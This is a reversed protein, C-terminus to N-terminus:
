RLKWQICMCVCEHEDEEMLMEYVCICEHSTRKWSHKMILSMMIVVAVTSQGEKNTIAPLPTSIDNRHTPCAGSVDQVTWTNPAYLLCSCRIWYMPCTCSMHKSDTSCGCIRTDVHKIALCTSPITLIFQTNYMFMDCQYLIPIFTNMSVERKVAIWTTISRKNNGQSKTYHEQASVLLIVPSRCGSM